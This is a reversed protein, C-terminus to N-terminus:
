VVMGEPVFEATLVQELKERTVQGLGICFKCYVGRIRGEVKISGRGGCLPCEVGDVVEFLGDESEFGLAEVAARRHEESWYMKGMLLRSVMERSIGLKRALWNQRRGQEKMVEAIRLM